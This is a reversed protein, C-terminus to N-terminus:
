RSTAPVGLRVVPLGVRSDETEGDEADCGQYPLKACLPLEAVLHWLWAPEVGASLVVM